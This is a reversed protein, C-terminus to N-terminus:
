EALLAPAAPNPLIEWTVNDGHQATYFVRWGGKFQKPVTAGLIGNTSPDGNSVHFGTIENDGENQFGDFAGFASDLTASPDRGEAFLRAPQNAPNSYDVTVDLTRRTSRM